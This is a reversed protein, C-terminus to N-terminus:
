WMQVLVCLAMLRLRWRGSSGQYDCTTIHLSLSLPFICPAILVFEAFSHLLLFVHVSNAHRHALVYAAICGARAHALFLAASQCAGQRSRFYLFVLISFALVPLLHCPLSGHLCTHHILLVRLTRQKGIICCGVGAFGLGRWPECCM